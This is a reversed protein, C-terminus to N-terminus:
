FGHMRWHVLSAADSLSRHMFLTELVAFPIKWAMEKGVMVFDRSGKQPNPNMSVETPSATDTLTRWQRPPLTCPRGSVRATLWQVPMTQACCYCNPLNSSATLTSHPHLHTGEGRPEAKPQMCPLRHLAAQLISPAWECCRITGLCAREELGPSGLRCAYQLLITTVTLLREYHFM